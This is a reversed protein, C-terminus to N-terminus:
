IQIKNFKCGTSNWLINWITSWEIIKRRQYSKRHWNEAHFFTILERWITSKLFKPTNTTFKSSNQGGFKALVPGFSRFNVYFELRTKYFIEFQLGNYLKKQRPVVEHTVKKLYHKELSLYHRWSNQCLNRWFSWIM